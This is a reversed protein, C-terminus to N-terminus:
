QKSRLLEAWKLITGAKDKQFVKASAASNFAALNGGMPSEILASKLFVSTRANKFIGPHDYYSILLITRNDSAIAANMTLYYAMCEASDFKYVKGKATIIEAAFRNDM